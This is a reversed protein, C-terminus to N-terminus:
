AKMYDKVYLDLLAALLAFIVPGLILGLIGFAALGGLISFFLFLVPLRLRNGILLPKLVNDIGSVIGIGWILLIAGKMYAGQLFLYGCAPLWVLTAGGIPFLATFSTAVGLLLAFPVGLAWYGLGALLGQVMATIISGHVVAFVANVIRDFLSAQDAESMPLLSRVRECLEKGDKLFFFFTFLWIIVHLPLTFVNQVVATAQSVLLGSTKQIGELTVKKLDINFSELHASSLQWEKVRDEEVFSRALKSFEIAEEALFGALRLAPALVLFLIFLTVILASVTARGRLLRVLRMHAPYVVVALIAAWAIPRLFPSVILYAFYLLVLLLAFFFVTVLRTEKM